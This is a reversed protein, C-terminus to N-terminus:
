ACGRNGDAGRRQRPPRDRRNRPRIWRHKGGRGDGAALLQGREAIAHDAVGGRAACDIGASARQLRREADDVAGVDCRVDLSPDAVPGIGGELARHALANM